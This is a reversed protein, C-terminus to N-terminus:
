WADLSVVTSLPSVGASNISFYYLYYVTGKTLGRFKKIRSKNFDVLFDIEAALLPNSPSGPAPASGTDNVVIQGFGNPSVNDPLPQGATLIAIYNEAGPVVSCSASMEGPGSIELKVNEARAPPISASASGKTPEYGSLLIINVDGQAVGDVYDALTYLAQILAAKATEFDGKSVTGGKYGSRKTMYTDILAQFTGQGMSPSPFTTANNYIGGSVILAFVDLQDIKIKRFNRRCRIKLTAM